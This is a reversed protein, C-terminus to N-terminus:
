RGREKEMGRSGMRLCLSPSGSEKERLGLGMGQGHDKQCVGLYLSRKAESTEQERRGRGMSSISGM